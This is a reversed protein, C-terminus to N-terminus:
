LDKNAALSIAARSAIKESPNKQELQRTTYVAEEERGAVDFLYNLFFLDM